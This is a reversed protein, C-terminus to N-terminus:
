TKLYEMQIEKARGLKKFTQEFAYFGNIDSFFSFFFILQKIRIQSLIVIFRQNKNLNQKITNQTHTHTNVVHTQESMRISYFPSFLVM